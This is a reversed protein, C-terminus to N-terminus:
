KKKHKPSMLGGRASGWSSPDSWDWDVGGTDSGFGVDSAEKQEDTQEDKWSTGYHAEMIEAHTPAGDEDNNNSSPQPSAAAPKVQQQMVVQEKEVEAKSAETDGSLGPSETAPKFTMNTGYQTTFNTFKNRNSPISMVEEMSDFNFRKAYADAKQKGSAVLDDLMDVLGSSTKIRDEIYGELMDAMKKDGRAKAIIRAANLDSIDKLADVSPAVGAILGIPGPMAAAAVKALKGGKMPESLGKAWEEMSEYDTFNLEKGWDQFAPKGDGAVPIDPGDDSSAPRPVCMNKEADFMMGISACYEPSAAPTTAEPAPAVPATPAGAGIYSGGPVNYMPDITTPTTIYKYLEDQSMGPTIGM